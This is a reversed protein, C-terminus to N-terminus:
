PMCGFSRVAPDGMCRHEYYCWECRSPERQTTPPRGRMWDECPTFFIPPSWQWQETARREEPSWQQETTDSEKYGWPSCCALSGQGEGGGPTQECERGNLWHHWGVMEDETMGKEEQRWDKGADPDKGILWSREDPPWLIPAEAEADTKRISIWPWNGKYIYKKKKEIEKLISHNSRWATSEHSSEWSDEGAGCNSLILEKPTEKVLASIGNMPSGGEQSLWEGFAGGGLVLM